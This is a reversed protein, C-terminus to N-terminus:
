RGDGHKLRIRERRARKGPRGTATPAYVREAALQAALRKRALKSDDSEDYLLAAAAAPGRRDSLVLARIVYEFAGIQIRLEDGVRVAKAPKAREGNVRVKGGAVAAAAVVRTKFFRAAWLWKDVRVGANEELAGDRLFSKLLDAGM